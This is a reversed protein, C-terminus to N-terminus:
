AHPEEDERLKEEESSHEDEIRGVAIFVGEIKM